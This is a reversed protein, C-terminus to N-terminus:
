KRWKLNLAEDIFSIAKRFDYNTGEREMLADTLEKLFITDIGDLQEKLDKYTDMQLNNIALAVKIVETAPFTYGKKIYKSARWLCAIPYAVFPNFCIRRQALDYLFNEDMEFTDNGVNYACMCITFDFQNIIELPTGFIKKILQVDRDEVKYTSASATSVICEYGKLVFEGECKNFSEEDKFFVDVDNIKADSFIATLYGGAICCDMKELGLRAVEKRIIYRQKEYSM